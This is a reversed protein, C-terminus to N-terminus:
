RHNPQVDERKALAILAQWHRPHPVQSGVRICSCATLSLGTAKAIAKLLPHAAIKTVVERQFRVADRGKNGASAKPFSTPQSRFPRQRQENTAPADFHRSLGQLILLLRAGAPNSTDYSQARVKGIQLTGKGDPSTMSMSDDRVTIRVATYIQVSGDRQQVRATGTADASGISVALLCTLFCCM